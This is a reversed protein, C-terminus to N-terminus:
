KESINKISFYQSILFKEKVSPHGSTVGISFAFM